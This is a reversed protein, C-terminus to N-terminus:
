GGYRRLVGEVSPVYSAGFINVHVLLPYLQFYAIREGFGPGSGCSVALKECDEKRLVSGFLDLMALDQEPHGHAVSPDILFVGKRSTLVNGSWLDGHILRPGAEGLGWREACSHVVKRCREVTEPPLLGGEVARRVQAEIRDRWWFEVFSEHLGNRQPLSGIFTDRHWGWRESRNAYLTELTEVLASRAKSYAASEIFEMFFVRGHVGAVEPAWAGAERLAHLGEAETAAMERNETVKAAWVGKGTKVRYIPYLSRSHLGMELAGSDLGLAELGLMIQESDSM